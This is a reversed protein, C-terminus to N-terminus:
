LKEIFIEGIKEASLEDALVCGGDFYESHEKAAAVFRDYGAAKLVGDELHVAIWRDVELPNGFNDCVGQPVAPSLPVIQRGEGVTYIGTVGKPSNYFKPTLKAADTSQCSHIFEGFDKLPDASSLIKGCMEKDFQLEYKACLITLCGYENDDKNKGMAMLALLANQSNQELDNKLEPFGAPTIKKLDDDYINCDGIQSDIRSILEFLLEIDERVAPIPMHLEFGRDALSVSVGRGIGNKDYVVLTEDEAPYDEVLVPSDFSEYVGYGFEGIFKDIDLQFDGMPATRSVTYNVVM